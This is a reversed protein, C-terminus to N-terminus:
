KAVQRETLEIDLNQWNVNELREKLDKMHIEPVDFAIVAKGLRSSSRAWYGVLRGVGGAVSFIVMIYCATVPMILMMSALVVTSFTYLAFSIVSSTTQIFWRKWGHRRCRLAVTIDRVAEHTLTEWRELTPMRGQGPRSLVLRSTRAIDARANKPIRLTIQETRFVSSRLAINLVALVQSLAVWLSTHLKVPCSWVVCGYCTLMWVSFWVAGTCVILATMAVGMHFKENKFWRGGRGRENHHLSKSVLHVISREAALIYGAHQEFMQPAESDTFRSSFSSTSSLALLLALMPAEDALAVIEEISNSLLGVITPIFALISAASSWYTPYDGTAQYLICRLFTSCMAKEDIGTGTFNFAQNVTAPNGPDPNDLVARSRCNNIWGEVWGHDDNIGQFLPRTLNRLQVMLICIIIPLLTCLVTIIYELRRSGSTTSHNCIPAKFIAGGGSNYQRAEGPESQAIYEGQANFNTQTGSGSSNATFGTEQFVHEPVSPPIALLETIAKAIQEQQVRTAINMDRECALLQVDELMGKMLKEVENGKGLTRVASFYRQRRSASDSPIVKQFLDDLKKAKEQCAEVVHKVGKCSDENIDGEKLYQKSADLINTVISLRGAVEHFAEPLDEVSTAADYIRKTGDVISIISSIVAIIAEAGSM